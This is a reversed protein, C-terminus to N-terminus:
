AHYGGLMGDITDLCLIMEDINTINPSCASDAVGMAQVVNWLPCQILKEDVGNCGGVREMYLCGLCRGHPSYYKSRPNRGVSDEYRGEILNIAEDRTRKLVEDYTIKM